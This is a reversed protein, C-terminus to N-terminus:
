GRGTESQAMFGGVIFSTAIGIQNANIAVSTALAREDKGFWTASLLTPTCQFFPQAAGVLVTGIVEDSYNPMLSYPVFDNLELGSRLACGLTMVFGAGVVVKRLGARAM